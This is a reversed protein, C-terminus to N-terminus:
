VASGAAALRRVLASALEEILADDHFPTPTIHLRETGRAITPLNIPQIYNAISACSSIV